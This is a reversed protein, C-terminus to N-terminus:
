LALRFYCAQSHTAIKSGHIPMYQLFAVAPSSELGVGTSSSCLLTYSFPLFVIFSGPLLPLPGESSFFLVESSLFSVRLLSFLGLACVCVCVTVCARLRLHKFQLRCERRPTGRYVSTYTLSPGACRLLGGKGFWM